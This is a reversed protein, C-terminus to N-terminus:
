GPGMQKKSREGAACRCRTRAWKCGPGAASVCACRRVCVTAAHVPPAGQWMQAPVPSVGAVDAGPSPEGEVCRRACARGLVTPRPKSHLLHRQRAPMRLVPRRRRVPRRQRAPPRTLGPTRRATQSGRRRGRVLVQDPPQARGEARIPADRPVSPSRASARRTTRHLRLAVRRLTLGMASLGAAGCRTQALGVPAPEAEPFPLSESTVLGSAPHLRSHCRDPLRKPGWTSTPGPRIRRPPAAM